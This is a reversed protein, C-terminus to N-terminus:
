LPKFSGDPLDAAGPSDSTHGGLVVEDFAQCLWYAERGERTKM